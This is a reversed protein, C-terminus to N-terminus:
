KGRLVADDAALLAPYSLPLYNETMANLPSGGKQRTGDHAAQRRWQRIGGTLPSM